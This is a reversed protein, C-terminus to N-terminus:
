NNKTRIGVRLIDDKALEKTSDANVTSGNLSIVYGDLNMDEVFKTVTTGIAVSVTEPASGPKQLNIKFSKPKAVKTTTRTSTNKSTAM